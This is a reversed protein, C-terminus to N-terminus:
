QLLNVPLDTIEYRGIGPACHMKVLTKQSAAVLFGFFQVVRVAIESHEGTAETAAPDLRALRGQGVRVLSRSQQEVAHLGIGVTEQVIDAAISRLDHVPMPKGREFARRLAAEILM